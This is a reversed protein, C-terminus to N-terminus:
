RTEIWLREERSFFVGSLSAFTLNIRQSFSTHRLDSM